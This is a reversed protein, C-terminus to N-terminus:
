KWARIHPMLCPQSQNGPAGVDLQGTSLPAIMKSGSVFRELEVELGQEEFYGKEVGLYFPAYGTVPLYGVKIKGLDPLETKAGGPNSCAQTILGLLILLIIVYINSKRLM